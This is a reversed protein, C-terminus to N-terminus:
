LSDVKKKKYSGLFTTFFVYQAFKQLQQQKTWSTAGNFYVFQLGDNGPPSCFLVNGILAIDRSM